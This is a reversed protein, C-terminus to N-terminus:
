GPETVGPRLGPTRGFAFRSRWEAQALTQSALHLFQLSVRLFVLPSIETLASSSSLFHMPLLVAIRSLEYPYLTADRFILLQVRKCGQSLIGAVQSDKARESSGTSLQELVQPYSVVRSQSMSDLNRSM